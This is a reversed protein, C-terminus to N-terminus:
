SLRLRDLEGARCPSPSMGSSAGPIPVLVAAGARGSGAGGSLAACGPALETPLVTSCVGAGPCGGVVLWDRLEQLGVCPVRPLPVSVAGLWQQQPHAPEPEGGPIGPSSPSMEAGRDNGPVGHLSPSARSYAAEEEEENVWSQAWLSPSVGQQWPPLPARAGVLARCSGPSCSPYGPHPPLRRARQGHTRLQGLQSFVTCFQVLDTSLLVSVACLGM